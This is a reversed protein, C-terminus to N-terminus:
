LIYSIKFIDPHLAFHLSIQFERISTVCVHYRQSQLIWISKPTMQYMTEFHGTDWFHSTMSHFQAFNPSEHISTVCIHPVNSRTPNLIVPTMQHVQRLIAQIKFIHPQLAFRLSIKPSPSLLLMYPTCKVKYPELGYQTMWHLRLIAQIEFIAPQLAFHVLIQSKHISTFMHPVNSRSPNLIMQTCKTTCHFPSFNQVWVVNVYIPYVQSQRTLPRKPTM